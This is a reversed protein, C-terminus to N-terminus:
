EEEVCSLLMKLLEEPTVVMDWANKCGLEALEALRLEKDEAVYLHIAPNVKERKKRGMVSVGGGRKRRHM